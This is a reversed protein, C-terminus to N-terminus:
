ATEKSIIRKEMVTAGIKRSLKSIVFLNPFLDVFPLSYLHNSCGFLIIWNVKNDEVVIMLARTYSWFVVFSTFV